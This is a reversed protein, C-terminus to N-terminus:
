VWTRGGNSGATRIMDLMIDQQGMAGATESVIRMRRGALILCSVSVEKIGM